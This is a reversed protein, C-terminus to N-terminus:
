QLQIADTISSHNLMPCYHLSVSLLFTLAWLYVAGSGSTGIRIGRQSGKHQVWTEMAFPQHGVMQFTACGTLLMLDEDLRQMTITAAYIMCQWLLAVM